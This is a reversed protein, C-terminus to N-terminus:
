LRGMYDTKGIAVGQSRLIAYAATVHFFFQPLGHHLLYPLAIYTKERPTGPRVTIARAECGEVRDRPISALFAITKDVRERLEAFTSERDPFSPIDLGALRAAVAKAFDSAMQVQRIFDYMDPYLRARLLTDPALQNALAHSEAKDLIISLTGMMQKFVPVSADFMSISM